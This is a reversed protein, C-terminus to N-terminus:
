GDELSSCGRPAPTLFEQQRDLMVWVHRSVIPEAVDALLADVDHRGLVALGHEALGAHHHGLVLERVDARAQSSGAQASLM